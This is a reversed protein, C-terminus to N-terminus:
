ADQDILGRAKACHYYARDFRMKENADEAMDLHAHAEDRSSDSMLSKDNLDRRAVAIAKGWGEHRSRGKMPNAEVVRSRWVSESEPVNSRERRRLM